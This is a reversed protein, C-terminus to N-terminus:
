PERALVARLAAELAPHEFAFGDGSLRTPLVRQSVLLLVEVLEAGYRLKLPLLPTPLVTPRHLVRGLTATLEANTVPNPATLNVAGHLSPSGLAHLIAGIEDDLTIWSMWQKGSGVRGGAGLRFPLLLRRLLGGHRGLVLGSRITVLRIGAEAVPAAAAEWQACVRAVFDSGGSSEESLEEDGRNGYFGIASGSVLVEPPRQLGALTEALLRTPRTRSELVLRKRADTWRADGIGAGALHVVAGIGELGGADIDGQEPQWAIADVRPPVRDTRLARIPRHGAATLAPVLASGIFGSSGTVLVDM